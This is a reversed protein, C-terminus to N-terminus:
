GQCGGHGVASQCGKPAPHGIYPAERRKEAEREGEVRRERERAGYEHLSHLIFYPLRNTASIRNDVGQQKHLRCRSSM